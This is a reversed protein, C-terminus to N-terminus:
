KDKDRKDTVRGSNKDVDVTVVRGSKQLVKVKYKTKNQEVKLVRGKVQQQAKQAAQAKDIKEDRKDQGYAQGAFSLAFVM